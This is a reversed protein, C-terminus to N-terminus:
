RAARSWCAAWRPPFPATGTRRTRPTVSPTNSRNNMTARPISSSMSAKSGAPIAAPKRGTRVRPFAWCRAHCRACRGARSRASGPPRTAPMSSPLSRAAGPWSRPSPRACRTTSSRTRSWARSGTGARSTWRCCSRTTAAASTAASTPPRRGTAPSISSPPTAPAPPKPWTPWRPLSRRARRRATPAPATMSWGCSRSRAARPSPGRWARWTM